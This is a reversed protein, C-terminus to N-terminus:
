RRTAAIAAKDLFLLGQEMDQHLFVLMVGVIFRADPNGASVLHNVVALYCEKEMWKMNDLRELPVLRGVDREKSAM